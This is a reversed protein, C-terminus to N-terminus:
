PYPQNAESKISASWSSVLVDTSFCANRETQEAFRPVTKRPGRYQTLNRLQRGSYVWHTGKGSWIETLEFIWDFTWEDSPPHIPAERDQASESFRLRNSFWNLFFLWTIVIEQAQIMGLNIIPITPNFVQSVWFIQTQKFVLELFIFLCLSVWPEVSRIGYGPDNNSQNNADPHNSTGAAHSEM